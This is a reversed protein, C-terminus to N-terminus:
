TTRHFRISYPMTRVSCLFRGETLMTAHVEAPALDVFRPEHLVDLVEQRESVSLKRPPGPRRQRPGFVPTRHRYFTARAVGFAECTADVGFRPAHETLAAMM